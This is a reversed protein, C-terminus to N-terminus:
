QSFSSENGNEPNIMDLNFSKEENAYKLLVMDVGSKLEPDLRMELAIEMGREYSHKLIAPLVALKKRPLLDPDTAQKILEDIIEEKKPIKLDKM